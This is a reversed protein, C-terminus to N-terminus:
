KKAGAIIRCDKLGLVFLGNEKIWRINKSGILICSRYDYKRLQVYAAVSMLVCDRRTWTMETKAIGIQISFFVVHRNFCGSEQVQSLKNEYFM